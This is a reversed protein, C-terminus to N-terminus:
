LMHLLLVALGVNYLILVGVSPLFRKYAGSLSCGFYEKTLILCLHLPSALYGTFASAYLIAAFVPPSFPSLPLLLPFCVGISLLALGTFLSIVMPLGIILLLLPSGQLLEMVDEVIHSTNVIERFFMIGVMAVGMNISAGKAVMKVAKTLPTKTEVFLLVIGVALGIAFGIGFLINLFIVLFIPSLGYLARLISGSSKHDPIDKIPKLGMLYGTVIAVVFLPFLRLIMAYVSTDALNASLIIMSSLPFVLLFTHRFWLNLYTRHEASLHLRDAEPEIVPASMLAGGPIPLMGFAAPLFALVTKVGSLNRLENITITIQGTEKFSYGLVSILVIIATLNITTFDTITRYAVIGFDSLNFGCFVGIIVAGAIVAIGYSIKKRVLVLIVGFAVPLGLLALM